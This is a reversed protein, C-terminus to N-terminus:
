LFLQRTKYVRKTRKREAGQARLLLFNMVETIFNTGITKKIILEITIDLPIHM